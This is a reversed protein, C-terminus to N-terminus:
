KLAVRHQKTASDASYQYLTEINEDMWKTREKLFAKIQSKAEEFNRPNREKPSLLDHKEGYSYGWKEQDRTIASGLYGITEDVYNELYEDSFYTKRLHKYRKILHTTFTKDRMLADFWLVDQLKFGQEKLFSEKFYLDCSNNFDWVCLKYKQGPEKYIYTSYGGADYNCSLENILFYDIFSKEDVYSAWGFKKDKYDYSYISKEFASFDNKIENKTKESLNPLGPYEINIKTKMLGTYSTFPYINKTENRAGRDLRLLYGSFQIGWKNKSLNLRCGKGATIRETLVYVGQYEGNIVVECFRVQPSYEMLEGSINYWMYNRILTKDLFPAHLVWEHHRPMDILEQPNNEGKEDILRIAYGKKDFWRSSHGRVHIKILSEIKPSDELQNYKNKNDVISLKAVIEKDGDKSTTFKTKEREENATPVGPIKEGNTEIKLIPLHTKLNESSSFEELPQMLTKDKHQHYRGNKDQMNANLFLSFVFLFLCSILGLLKYKM